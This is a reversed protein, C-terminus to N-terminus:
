QIWAPWHCAQTVQHNVWFFNWNCVNQSPSVMSYFMAWSPGCGKRVKKIKSRADVCWPSCNKNLCSPNEATSRRRRFITQFKWFSKFKKQPYREDFSPTRQTRLKQQRLIVAGSNPFESKIVASLRLRTLLTPIRANVPWSNVGIYFYNCFKWLICQLFIQVATKPGMNRWCISDM